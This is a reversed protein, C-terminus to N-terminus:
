RVGSSKRSKRSSPTASPDLATHGIPLGMLWERFTVSRVLDPRGIDVLQDCLNAVHLNGNRGRRVRNGRGSQGKADRTTPTHWYGSANEIRRHDLDKLASLEGNRMMGSRPFTQSFPEWGGGLFRQFTRWSSTDPDFKALLEPTSSGYDAASAKLALAWDPLVSTRARSGAASRTSPLEMGLLDREPSNESMKMGKSTPGISRSSAGASRTLKVNRSRRSIAPDSLAM